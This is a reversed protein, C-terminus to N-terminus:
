PVVPHDRPPAEPAPRAPRVDRLRKIADRVSAHGSAALDTLAKQDAPDSSTLLCPLLDVVDETLATKAMVFDRLPPLAVRKTGQLKCLRVVAAGAVRSDSDKSAALLAAQAKADANKPLALVAARRVEPERSALLVDLKLPDTCAEGADVIGQLASLRTDLQESENAAANALAQCIALVTEPAIEDDALRTPDTEAFLTATAAIAGARVADDSSGLLPRMSELLLVGADLLPVAALAALVTKRDPDTVLRALRAPGLRTAARSLEARDGREAAKRLESVPPELLGTRRNINAREAAVAGFALQVSCAFAFLSIIRRM